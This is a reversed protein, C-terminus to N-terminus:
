ITSVVWGIWLGVISFGETSDICDIQPSLGIGNEFKVVDVVVVVTHCAKENLEIQRRRDVAGICRSFM